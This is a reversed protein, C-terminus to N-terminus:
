GTLDISQQPSPPITKVFDEPSLGTILDFEIDEASELQALGQPSLNDTILIKYTM